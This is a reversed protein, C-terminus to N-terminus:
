EISKSAIEGAIYRDYSRPLLSTLSCGRELAKSGRPINYLFNLEGLSGWGLGRGGRFREEKEGRRKVIM